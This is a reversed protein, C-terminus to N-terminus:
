PVFSSKIKLLVAGGTTGNLNETKTWTSWRQCLITVPAQYHSPRIWVYIQAGYACHNNKSIRIQFLFRHKDEGTPYPPLYNVEARIAKKTNKAPTRDDPCKHKLANCTLDLIGFGRLKTRYNAMKYKISTQCGSLGLSSGPDKLCPHAKILVEAVALVQLSSPYAAYTYISQALKELVDSRKNPYTLLPWGKQLSWQSKWSYSWNWCLITSPHIWNAM